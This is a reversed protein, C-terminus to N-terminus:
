DLPITIVRLNERSVETVKEKTHEFVIKEWRVKLEIPDTNPYLKNLRFELWKKGENSYKAPQSFNTRLFGQLQSPQIGKFLKYPSIEVDSTQADRFQVYFQPNLVQTQSSTTHVQKFGPLVFAPWPESGALGSIGVLLYQFPLYILFFLFIKKVTKRRLLM